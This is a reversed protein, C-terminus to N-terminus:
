NELDRWEHVSFIEFVTRSVSMTEFPSVCARYEVTDNRIFSSHMVKPHSLLSNFYVFRQATETRCSFKKYVNLTGELSNTYVTELIFRHFLGAAM